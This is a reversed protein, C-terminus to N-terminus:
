RASGVSLSTSANKSSATPRPTPANSRSYQLGETQVLEHAREIAPPSVDVGLAASGAQAKRAAQRTTLGTGCGINLVHDASQMACARRLVESHRLLEADYSTFRHDQGSESRTM